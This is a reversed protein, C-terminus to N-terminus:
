NHGAVSEIASSIEEWKGRGEENPFQSPSTIPLPPPAAVVKEDTFDWGDGSQSNNGHKSIYGRRLNRWRKM